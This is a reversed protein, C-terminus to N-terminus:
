PHGRVSERLSAMEVRLRKEEVATTSYISDKLSLNDTRILAPPISIGFIEKVIHSIWVVADVTDLMAMTEATLTSRCVRRLKRSSWSIPCVNGEKDELFIIYGVQSCGNPLNGYSADCYAVLHIESGLKAFKIIIPEKAKRQVKIAKILDDLTASHLKTSLQCVDFAITPNSQSSIWNLQGCIGRYQHQEDCNLNRAKDKRSELEVLQISQIYEKQHLITFKDEKDIGVGLFKLPALSETGIEFVQRVKEMAVDHFLSSGGFIFDDVHVATIGHLINVKYYFLAEDYLSRLVVIKMLEDYVRQYWYRSAENLGYVAKRLKWLKLTKAEKPPKLFIQRELLRGQLFATKVDLANCSWDKTTIVSLTLRIVEKSCTPSDTERDQLGSDEFGRAVLRAKTVVTGEKLKNNIVWRTSIFDQNEDKVEEFVQNRKWNELEKGKADLIAEKDNCIILVDAAVPEWCEVDSKFDYWQIHDTASNKINFCADNRGGM